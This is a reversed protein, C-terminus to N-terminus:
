NLIYEIASIIENDSVSHETYANGIESLLILNIVNNKNKKDHLMQRFIEKSDFNKIRTPLNFFKFLREAYNLDDKSICNRKFCLFLAATMGVAVCEGHLMKFDSLSEVAHGFTHGFNLIERLGNEKEDKSVVDAKCKCSGFIVKQLLQSNLNKIQERNDAIMELYSKDIIYGHKIAEAMGASFETQPLTNLTSSNIYVFDPQYFAGVMNKNGMFDIGVKGGVSSDVQALLTTPIQVFKIGRMFTAAAFGAMDGTVGGGLAIVVSKRDFNNDVLFKYFYEITNINKSNEGAEFVCHLVKAFKESLINKINELYIGRVSSDTIICLKRNLLGADEFAEILGDFSDNIYIPYKTTSTEVFLKEM